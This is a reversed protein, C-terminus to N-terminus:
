MSQEFDCIEIDGVSFSSLSYFERDAYPHAELYEENSASVGLDSNGYADVTDYVLEPVAEEGLIVYMGAKIECGHKDFYKM